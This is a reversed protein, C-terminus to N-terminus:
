LFEGLRSNPPPNLQKAYANLQIAIMRLALVMLWGGSQPITGIIELAKQVCIEAAEVQVAANAKKIPDAEATQAKSEDDMMKGLMAASVLKKHADM